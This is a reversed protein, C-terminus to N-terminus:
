PDARREHIDVIRAANPFPLPKLSVTDVVTFIAAQFGVATGLLAIAVGRALYSM